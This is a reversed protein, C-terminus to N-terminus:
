IKGENKCYSRKYRGRAFRRWEKMRIALDKRQKKTTHHAQLIEADDTASTMIVKIMGKDLDDNHWTPRLAIIENYLKACIVRTMGIIM